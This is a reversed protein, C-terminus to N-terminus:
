SCPFEGALIQIFFLDKSLLMHINHLSSCKDAPLIFQGKTDTIMTLDKMLLRHFLFLESLIIDPLYLVMQTFASHQFLYDITNILMINNVSSNQEDSIMKGQKKSNHSLASGLQAAEPATLQIQKVFGQLVDGSSDAAPQGRDWCAAGDEEVCHEFSEQCLQGARDVRGLCGGVEEHEM